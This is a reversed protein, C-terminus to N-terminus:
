NNKFLRHIMNEEDDKKNLLEGDYIYKRYYTYDEQPTNYVYNIYELVIKDIEKGDFSWEGVEIYDMKEYLEDPLKCYIENLRDQMERSCVEIFSKKVIEILDMKFDKETCENWREDYEYHM